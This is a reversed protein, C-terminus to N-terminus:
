LNQYLHVLNGSPDCVSSTRPMGTEDQPPAIETGGAALARRHASDLDDVLFGFNARGSRYPDHEGSTLNLLFFEDGPWSGFTAMFHRPGEGHREEVFTVGFVAEYFARAIEIDSVGINVEAVRCASKAAMHIGNELYDSM